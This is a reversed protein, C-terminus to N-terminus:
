LKQYERMANAHRTATKALRVKGTIKIEGDRLWQRLMSSAMAAWANPHHPEPM